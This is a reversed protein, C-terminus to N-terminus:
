GMNKRGGQAKAPRVLTAMASSLKDSKPLGAQAIRDAFMQTLVETKSPNNETINESRIVDIMIQMYESRYFDCNGLSSINTFAPYNHLLDSCYVKINAYTNNEDSITNEHVNLDVSGYLYIQKYEQEFQPQVNYPTGNLFSDTWTDLSNIALEKQGSVRIKHNQVGFLLRDTATNLKDKHNFLHESTLTEYDKRFAIWAAAEELSCYEQNQVGM